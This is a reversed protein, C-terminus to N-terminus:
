KIILQKIGGFCENFVSPGWKGNKKEYHQFMSIDAWVKGKIAFEQCVVQITDKDVIRVNFNKGIFEHDLYKRINETIESQEIKKKNGLWHLYNYKCKYYDKLKEKETKEKFNAM